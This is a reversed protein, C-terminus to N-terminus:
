ISVCMYACYYYVIIFFNFNFLLRTIINKIKFYYILKLKEKLDLISANCAQVKWWSITV